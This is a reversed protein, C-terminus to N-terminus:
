VDGTVVVDFSLGEDEIARAADQLFELAEGSPSAACELRITVPWGDYRPYQEVLYGDLAYGLYRNIKEEIQRLQTMSEAWPRREIMVLTVTREGANPSVLDVLRPNEVGPEGFERRPDEPSEPPEPVTPTEPTEPTEAM